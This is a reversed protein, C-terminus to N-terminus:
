STFMQDIAILKWHKMKWITVFKGTVTTLLDKGVASQDDILRQFRSVLSIVGASSEAPPILLMRSINM